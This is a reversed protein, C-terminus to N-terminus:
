LAYWFGRNEKDILNLFDVDRAEGERRIALATADRRRNDLVYLMRLVLATVVAWALSVMIAVKAPTYLPATSGIFTLPGIINSAGYAALITADITVRNTHGSYNAAAWSYLISLNPGL